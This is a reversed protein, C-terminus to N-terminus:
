FKVVETARSTASNSHNEKASRFPSLFKECKWKWTITRKNRVNEWNFRFLSFNAIIRFNHVTNSVRNSSEALARLIEERERECTSGIIRKLTSKRRLMSNEECYFTPQYLNQKWMFIAKLRTCKFLQVRSVKEMWFSRLGGHCFRFLNNILFNMTIANKADESQKGYIKHELAQLFLKYNVSLKELKNLRFNTFSLQNFYKKWFQIENSALFFGRFHKKFLIM